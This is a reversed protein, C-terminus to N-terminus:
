PHCNGCPTYGRNILTDKNGDFYEKNKEAMRKVSSCDSLHFKKTNKNLVYKGSVPENGAPPTYPLVAYGTAYDITINPQVNYCWVCFKIGEGNDEVSLGELLVGSAVLNNGIFVPTARYMVHNHTEKVYDAVMNEFPLMGEINLYRTGTILNRPNADEGSLQHGILHCRNYLYGGAVADTEISQWGSTHVSSIDGREEIPMLDIGVSATCEGCRGYHDLSSYLEFSQATIENKTFYPVNNNIVAYAEGQYPPVEDYSFTKTVDDRSITVTLSDGEWDVSLGFREAIYRIPLMTRENIIQPAVDIWEATDNFYATNVGITLRITDAKMNLTVTQTAGDWGVDGGFSEIVARIPILTRESIIVPTTGNGPDIETNQGNVTMIPNDIQMRITTNAQASTSTIITSLLIGLTIILSHFLKNKM